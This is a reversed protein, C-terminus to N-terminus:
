DRAVAPRVADEVRLVRLDGLPFLLEFFLVVSVAFFEVRLMRLDGLLFLLEFFLVM